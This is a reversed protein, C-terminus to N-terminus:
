SPTRTPTPSLRTRRSDRSPSRRSTCISRATTTPASTLECRPKVLQGSKLANGVIPGLAEFTRVLNALEDKM